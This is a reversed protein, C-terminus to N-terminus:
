GKLLEPNDHINGIVEFFEGNNHPISELWGCSLAYKNTGEIGQMYFGTSKWEIVSKQNFNWFGDGPEYIYQVIDGEFLKVGNRDTLGTYEGVTSIDVLVNVKGYGEEKHWIQATDAHILLDGYFWNGERKGRFLIERNM